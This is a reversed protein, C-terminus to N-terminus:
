FRFSLGQRFIFDHEHIPQSFGDQLVGGSIPRSYQVEALLLWRESLALDFGAGGGATAQPIRTIPSQHDTVINYYTGGISALLYPRFFSDPKRWLRLPYLKAALDVSYDVETSPLINSNLDESTTGSFELRISVARGVAREASVFGGYLDKTVPFNPGAQSTRHVLVPGVSVVWGDAPAPSPSQMVSNTGTDCWGSRCAAINGALILFTLLTPHRLRM